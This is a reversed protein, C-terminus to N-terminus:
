YLKLLEEYIKEALARYGVENYHISDDEANWFSRPLSGDLIDVEDEPMIELGMKNLTGYDSLYERLNIFRGGYKERMANELGSRGARTGTTLGVVLYGASSKANAIMGDILGILANYGSEDSTSVDDGWDGNTGIFIINFDAQKAERSAQSEFVATEGEPVTLEEGAETRTFTFSKLRRPVVSTDVDVTITGEIGNIYCTQWGGYGASSSIFPVVPVGNEAVLPAPNNEITFSSGADAGLMFPGDITTQVGGQRAAITTATEGGVGYNIINAGTLEALVSPYSSDASVGAGYTLSDGWCAITTEALTTKADTYSLISVGQLPSLSEKEWVMSKIKLRTKDSPVALTGTLDISEHPEGSLTAEQMLVDFLAGDDYAASILLLTEVKQEPNKIFANVDVSEGVIDNVVYINKNGERINFGIGFEGGGDAFSGGIGYLLGDVYADTDANSSFLINNFYETQTLFGMPTSNIMVGDIYLNYLNQETDIEWRITSYKGFSMIGGAGSLIEQGQAAISLNGDASIEFENIIGYPQAQNSPVSRLRTIVEQDNGTSEFKLKAEAFYVGPELGSYNASASSFGADAIKVADGTHRSFGRNGEYVSYDRADILTVGSELVDFSFTKKVAGTGFQGTVDVSKREQTRTVKGTIDIVDPASTTWSVAVGEISAPLSLDATVGNQGMNDNLLDRAELTDAVSKEYTALDAYSRLSAYDIHVTNGETRPYAEVMDLYAGIDRRATGCQVNQLEPLATGNIFLSLTPYGNPNEETKEAHRTNLVAKLEFFTNQHVTYNSSKAPQQTYPAEVSVTNGVAMIKFLTNKDTSQIEWMFGNSAKIRKEFVLINTVATTDSGGVRSQSIGTQTIKMAGDELTVEANSGTLTQSEANWTATNRNVLLGQIDEVENYGVSHGIEVDRGPVLIEFSKSQNNALASLVVRTDTEARTVAGEATVVAENSSLWTITEGGILSKPLTLDEIVATPANVSFADFIIESVDANAAAMPICLSCVLSQVILASLLKRKIKMTIVMGKATSLACFLM